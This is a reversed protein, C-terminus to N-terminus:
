QYLQKLRKQLYYICIAADEKDKGRLKYKEKQEWARSLLCLWYFCEKDTLSEVWQKNGM